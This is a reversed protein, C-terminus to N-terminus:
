KTLLTLSPLVVENMAKGRNDRNGKENEGILTRDPNNMPPFAM